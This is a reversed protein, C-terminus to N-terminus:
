GFVKEPEECFRREIAAITEPSLYSEAYPAADGLELSLVVEKDGLRRAYTAKWEGAVLPSVNTRYVSVVLQRDCVEMAPLPVSNILIGMPQGFPDGLRGEGLSKVEKLRRGLVMCEGPGFFADREALSSKTYFLALEQLRLCTGRIGVFESPQPRDEALAKRAQSNKEIAERVNNYAFLLFREDPIGAVFAPGDLLSVSYTSLFPHAVLKGEWSMLVECDHSKIIKTVTDRYTAHTTVM